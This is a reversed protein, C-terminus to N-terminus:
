CQQMKLFLCNTSTLLARICICYMFFMSLLFGPHSLDSMVECEMSRIIGLIGILLAGCGCICFCHVMRDKDKVLLPKQNCGPTVLGITLGTIERKFICQNYAPGDQM